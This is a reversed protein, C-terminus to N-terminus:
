IQEHYKNQIENLVNDEIDKVKKQFDIISTTLHNNVFDVKEQNFKSNTGVDLLTAELIMLRKELKNTLDSLAINSADQNKEFILNNNTEIKLLKQIEDFKIEFFEEIKNISETYKDNEQGLRILENFLLQQKM